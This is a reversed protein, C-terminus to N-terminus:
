KKLDQLDNDFFLSKQEVEKKSVDSFPISVENIDKMIEDGKKPRIVAFLKKKEKNQDLLNFGSNEVNQNQNVDIKKEEKQPINANQMDVDESM